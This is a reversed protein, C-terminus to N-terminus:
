LGDCAGSSLAHENSELRHLWLMPGNEIQVAEIKENALLQSNTAALWWLQRAKEEPMEYAVLKSSSSSARRVKVVDTSTQLISSIAQLALGSTKKDFTQQSVGYVVCVVVANSSSQKWSEQSRLDYSM